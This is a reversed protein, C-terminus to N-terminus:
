ERDIQCLREIRSRQGLQQVTSHRDVVLVALAM